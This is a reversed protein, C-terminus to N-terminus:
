DSGPSAPAGPGLSGRLATQLMSVCRARVVSIPARKANARMCAAFRAAAFRELAQRVTPRRSTAHGGKLARACEKKVARVSVASGRNQLCRRLAALLGDGAATISTAAKASSAARASTSKSQSGGCAALSGSTFLVAVVVASARISTKMDINPMSKRDEWTLSSCQTFAMVSRRGAGSQLSRRHITHGYQICYVSAHLARACEWAAHAKFLVSM